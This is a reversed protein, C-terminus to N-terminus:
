IFARFAIKSLSHKAREQAFVFADGTKTLFIRVSDVVVHQGHISRRTRVATFGQSGWLRFHATGAHCGSAFSSGSTQGARLGRFSKPHGVRPNRLTPREKSKREIM